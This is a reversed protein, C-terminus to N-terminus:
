FISKLDELSNLSWDTDPVEGIVCHGYLCYGFLCGNERAAEWDSRRDGIMALSRGSIQYKRLYESVLQSKNHIDGKGVVLIPEFHDLVGATELVTEVYPRRGNSACVLTYGQDRLYNITSGVGAYYNGGGVRVEDCLLQLVRQSVTDREEDQLEPLLNQFIVKVPKGVELLIRERSPTEIKHNTEQTFERIAKEYVELIITESSFLTGDVDFAILKVGSAEM